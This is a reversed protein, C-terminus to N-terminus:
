RKVVAMVIAVVVPVQVMVALKSRMEDTTAAVVDELVQDM